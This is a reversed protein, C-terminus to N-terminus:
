GGTVIVRLKLVGINLKIINFLVANLLFYIVTHKGIIEDGTLTSPTIEM